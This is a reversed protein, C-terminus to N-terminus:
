RNYYYFHKQEQFVFSVCRKPPVLWTRDCTLTLWGLPWACWVCNKAMQRWCDLSNGVTGMLTIQRTAKLEFGGLTVMLATVAEGWLLVISNSIRRETTKNSPNQFKPSFAISSFFGSNSPGPHNDRSGGARRFAEVAAASGVLAAVACSALRCSGRSKM